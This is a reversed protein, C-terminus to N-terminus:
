RRGLFSRIEEYPLRNRYKIWMGAAAAFMLGCSAIIVYILHKLHTVEKALDQNSVNVSEKQPTDSYSRLVKIDNKLDEITDLSSSATGSKISEELSRLKSEISGSVLGIVQGKLANVEASVVPNMGQGAIAAVNIKNFKAMEDSDPILVFGMILALFMFFVVVGMLMRNVKMLQQYSPITRMVGQVKIIETRKKQM